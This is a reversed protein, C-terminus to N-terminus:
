PDEILITLLITTGLDCSFTIPKSHNKILSTESLNFMNVPFTVHWRLVLFNIRVYRWIEIRSNINDWKYLDNLKMDLVHIARDGFDM